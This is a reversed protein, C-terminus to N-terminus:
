LISATINDRVKSPARCEVIRMPSGPVVKLPLRDQELESLKVQDLSDRLSKFIQGWAGIAACGDSFSCQKGTSVCEVPIMSEEVASFLEWMSIQSADRSLRYGGNRGRTSRVLDGARLRIMIQDLYDTPIGQRTAIDNRRVLPQDSHRSLDLLIKLAYRSKSTLNM